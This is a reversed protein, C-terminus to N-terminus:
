ELSNYKDDGTVTGNQIMCILWLDDLSVLSEPSQLIDRNFQMHPKVWNTTDVIGVFVSAVVKAWYKMDSTTNDNPIHETTTISSTLVKLFITM